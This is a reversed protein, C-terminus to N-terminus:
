PPPPEGSIYFNPIVTTILQRAVDRMANQNYSVEYDVVKKQAITMLEAQTRKEDRPVPMNMIGIVGVDTSYQYVADVFDAASANRTGWLTVRVRDACLQSHSLNSSLRPASALARTGDPQVHVSAFPPVINDPVLFSPYLAIGPNSIGYPPFYSNLALWAPLSNSVIQSRSFSTPSDIIQTAMDAYVAFGVYHFLDAQKYFSSRSSFAFRLGDFEGIWLMGPAVASLDQVEEESTLVVRNAAYTEAEEQRTDTAYHLSGKVTLTSAQATIKPVANFAVRNFLLSNYLASPSIIDAKVWFRYGDLPLILQKYLTFTIEQFSSISDVGAALDSALPSKAFAAEDATSM